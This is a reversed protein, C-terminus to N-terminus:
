FAASGHVLSCCFWETSALNAGKGWRGLGVQSAGYTCAGRVHVRARTACCPLLWTGTPLVRRFGVPVLLRGGLTRTGSGTYTGNVSGTLRIVVTPTRVTHTRKPSFCHRRRWGRRRRLPDRRVIPRRMGDRALATAARHGEIIPLFLRPRTLGTRHPHFQWFILVSIRQSHFGEAEEFMAAPLTRFICM